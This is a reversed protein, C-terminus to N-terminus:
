SQCLRAFETQEIGLLWLCDGTPFPAMGCRGRCLSGHRVCTPRFLKLDSVCNLQPAGARLMAILTTKGAGAAGVIEAVM